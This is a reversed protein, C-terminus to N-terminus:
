LFVLYFTLRLFGGWSISGCATAVSWQALLSQYGCFKSETGSVVLVALLVLLDRTTYGFAELKATKWRKKWNGLWVSSFNGCNSQLLQVQQQRQKQQQQQPPLFKEKILNLAFHAAAALAVLALIYFCLSLSLSLLSFAPCGQTVAPLM